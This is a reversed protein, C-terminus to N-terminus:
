HGFQSQCAALKSPDTGAAAVCQTLKATTNLAQTAQKDAAAGQTGSQAAAHSLQQQAQNVAQQAQQTGVKIAHNAADSNPKIATFYVVGFLALSAFLGVIYMRWNGTVLVM